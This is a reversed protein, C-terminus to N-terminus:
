EVKQFFDQYRASYIRQLKEEKLNNKSNWAIQM